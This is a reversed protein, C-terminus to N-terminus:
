PQRWFAPGLKLVRGSFAALGGHRGHDPFRHGRWLYELVFALVVLLYNLLNAFLSWVTQPVTVPPTLQMALLLGGPAALLALVLNVGALSALLVTWGLTVRRAYAAVRPDLPQEAGRLARAMREVLPVRGRLLSRGFLWAVLANLLVPPAYLPLMAWGSRGLWLLGALGAVLALLAVVSGRRLAPLLLLVLLLAAACVAIAGHDLVAAAHALLPYALAALLGAGALLRRM